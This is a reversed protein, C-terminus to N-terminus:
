DGHEAGGRAEAEAEAQLRAAARLIYARRWARVREPNAARYRRLYEANRQRREDDTRTSTSTSRSM